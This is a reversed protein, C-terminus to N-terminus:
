IKKVRLTFGYDVLLAATLKIEASDLHQSEKSITMFIAHNQLKVFVAGMSEMGVIIGKVTLPMDIDFWRPKTM